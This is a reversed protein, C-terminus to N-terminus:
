SMTDLKGNGNDQDMPTDSLMSTDGNQQSNSSLRMPPVINLLNPDYRPELGVSSLGMAKRLGHPDSIAAPPLQKAIDVLNATVQHALQVEEVSAHQVHALHMPPPQSLRENQAQQLQSLIALNEELQTQLKKQFEVMKLQMELNDIFNTEIGLDVLTRLGEFDIKVDKYKEEEDVEDPITREIESQEHKQRSNEILTSMAKRHEGNTLVDLLGNALISAYSSEKTFELISKAYDFGTEDGYTNLVLDTEEKSLTSFRSDYVPAFSSFAGYNLTKVLKGQNRRDERFSQLQGTGEKLKGVLGGITVVREPGENTDDVIIRMSTTGDRRTRIFGMKRAEKRGLVKSRAKQAASQVQVLVEDPTLDDVFPEFKSKPENESRIQRRKEEEEDQAAINEDIKSEVRLAAEAEDASDFIMPEADQGDVTPLEFGLEKPSLERMYSMLPRLSRLLNEPQLLRQGVHLLRKAAKHYVTEVHNYKIANDCMLKFDDSFEQITKYENDDIKQRITSFDMPKSIISSYNPAIDDTVPWAFFQHPDRKELARILHELLKSLPTRSQKQKLVCTRPERGSESLPRPSLSDRSESKVDLKSPTTHFTDPSQMQLPSSSEEIIKVPQLLELPDVVPELPILPVMPKTMPKGAVSQTTDISAYMPNKAMEEGYTVDEPNIEDKYRKKEKHHKHRKERDKKKKKKKSKKPKESFDSTFYTPTEAGGHEPTNTASSGGAVKLILRIGRDDTFIFM